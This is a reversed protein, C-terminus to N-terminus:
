LSNILFYINLIKFYLMGESVSVRLRPPSTTTAQKRGLGMIDLDLDTLEDSATTVDLGLQFVLILTLLISM